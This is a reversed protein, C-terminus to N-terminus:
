RGVTGLYFRTKHYTTRGDRGTLQAWLWDGKVETRVFLESEACGRGDTNLVIIGFNKGKHVVDASFVSGNRDAKM